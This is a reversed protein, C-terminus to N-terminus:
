CLHTSWFLIENKNKRSRLFHDTRMSQIRKTFSVRVKVCVHLRSLGVSNYCFVGDKFNCLFLFKIPKSKSNQVIENNILSFFTLNFFIKNPGNHPSTPNKRMCFEFDFGFFNENKHVKLPLRLCSKRSRNNKECILKGWPGTYRIPPIEFNQSLKCIYKFTFTIDGTDVVSAIFSFIKSVSLKEMNQKSAIPNCYM